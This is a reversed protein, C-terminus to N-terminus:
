GQETHDGAEGREQWAPLLFVPVQLLESSIILGSM